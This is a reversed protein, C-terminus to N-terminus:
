ISDVATKVIGAAVGYGTDTLHVKDANFYTTNTADQLNANGGLDARADAYTTWNANILTNLAPWIVTHWNVANRAADQADIETCIIVKYGLARVSTCWGSLRSHITAADAGASADNIGGWVIAINRPRNNSYLPTVEAAIQSQMQAVTNGSAAVNSMKWSGALPGALQSPYNTSVSTAGTGVTRSDGEMVVIGNIPPIALSLIEAATLERTGIAVHAILGNWPNGPVASASGIFLTAPTGAWVGLGTLDAGQQVGNLYARARDQAKNWTLAQCIYGGALTTVHSVTRSKVTGGAVYFWGLQNITTAEHDLLVRNNTDVQLTLTRKLANLQWTAWTPIRFFLLATGEAASFASGIGAPLTIYSTSGDFSTATRGDGISPQALTPATYTGNRGNGSEDTATTGSQEALPYYGILSAGFVSKLFDTFTYRGAGAGSVPLQNPM